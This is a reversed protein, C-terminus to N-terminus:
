KKSIKLKGEVYMDSIEDTVDSYYYKHQRSHTTHKAPSSVLAREDEATGCFLQWFLLITPGTLDLPLDKNQSLPFVVFVFYVASNVQPLRHEMRNNIWLTSTNNWGHQWKSHSAAKSSHGDYNRGNGHSKGNYGWAGPSPKRATVLPM